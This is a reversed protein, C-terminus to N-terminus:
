SPLPPPPHPPSISSSKASSLTAPRLYFSPDPHYYPSKDIPNPLTPLNPITDSLSPITQLEIPPPPFTTSNPSSHMSEM